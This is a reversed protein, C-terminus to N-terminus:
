GGAGPRMVRLVDGDCLVREPDRDQAENIAWVVGSPLAFQDLVDRVRAGQSLCLDARGRAATPLKERLVSHLFVTVQIEGGPM